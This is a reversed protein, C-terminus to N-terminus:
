RGALHADVKCVYAHRLQVKRLLTGYVVTANEFEGGEEMQAYQQIQSADLRFCDFAPWKQQLDYIQVLNLRGSRNAYTSAALTVIRVRPVSLHEIENPLPIAYYGMIAPRV